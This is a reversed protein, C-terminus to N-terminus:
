WRIRKLHYRWKEFVIGYVKGERVVSLTDKTIVARGIAIYGIMSYAYVSCQIFIAKEDGQQVLQSVHEGIHVEFVLHLWMAAFPFRLETVQEDRIKALM